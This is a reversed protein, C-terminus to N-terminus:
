NSAGAREAAAGLSATAATPWSKARWPAPEHSTSRLLGGGNGGAGNDSGGGSGLQNPNRFDGYVDNAFQETSGFPGSAVTAAATAACAALKRLTAWRAGEISGSNGGSQGGLYGRGSVDIRSDAAVILIDANIELRPATTLTAGPHRLVSGNTLVLSAVNINTASVLANDLCSMSM